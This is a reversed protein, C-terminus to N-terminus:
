VGMAGVNCDSVGGQEFDEVSVNTKLDTSSVEIFDDSKKAVSDEGVETGTLRKDNGAETGTLKKAAKDNVPRM